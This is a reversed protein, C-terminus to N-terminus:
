LNGNKIKMMSWDELTMGLRSELMIKAEDFVTPQLYDPAVQVFTKAYDDLGDRDLNDLELEIKEVADIHDIDRSDAITFMPAMDEDVAQFNEEVFDISDVNKMTNIFKNEISMDSSDEPLSQPRINKDM